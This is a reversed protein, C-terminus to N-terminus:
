LRALLELVANLLKADAEAKATVGAGDLGLTAEVHESVKTHIRAVAVFALVVADAARFDRAPKAALVRDISALTEPQEDPCNGVTVAHKLAPCPDFRVFVRPPVEVVHNSRPDRATRRFRVVTSFRGLREIPVSQGTALWRTVLLVLARLLREGAAGGSGAASALEVQLAEALDPGPDNGAAGRDGHAGVATRRSVVERVADLARGVLPGTDQGEEACDAWSSVIVELQALARAAAADDLSPLLQAVFQELREEPSEPAAPREGLSALAKVLAPAARFAAVAMAPVRVAEGTAPDRAMRAVRVMASFTGLGEVEISQGKALDRTVVAALTALATRAGGLTELPEGGTLEAQLAEALQESRPGM